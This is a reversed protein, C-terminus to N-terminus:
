STVSYTNSCTLGSSNNGICVWFTYPRNETLNGGVTKTYPASHGLTDAVRVPSTSLYASIGYGDGYVDVAELEDGTARWYASGVARGNHYIVASRSGDSQQASVSFDVNSPGAAATGAGVTLVLGITVGVTTLLKAARKGISISM